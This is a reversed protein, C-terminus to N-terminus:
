SRLLRQQSCQGSGPLSSAEQGQFDNAACCGNINCITEGCIKIQMGTLCVHWSVYAGVEGNWGCGGGPYWRRAGLSCSSSSFTCLFAATEQRCFAEQWGGTTEKKRGQQCSRQLAACVGANNAAHLNTVKALNRWVFLARHEEPSEEAGHIGTVPHQAEGSHQAVLLLFDTLSM